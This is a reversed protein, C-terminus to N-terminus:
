SQEGQGEEGVVMSELEDSAVDGEVEYDDSVLNDLDGLVNSIIKSVQDDTAAILFLDREYPLFYFKSAPALSINNLILACLKSTKQNNKLTGSSMLAILRM